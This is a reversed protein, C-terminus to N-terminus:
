VMLCSARLFRGQKWPVSSCVLRLCYWSIPGHMTEWCMVVTAVLFHGLPTLFPSPAEWQWGPTISPKCSVNLLVSVARIPHTSKVPTNLWLREAYLWCKKHWEFTLLDLLVWSCYIILTDWPHKFARPKDQGTVSELPSVPRWADSKRSQRRPTPYHTTATKHPVGM